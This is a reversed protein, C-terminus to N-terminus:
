RRLVVARGALTCAVASGTTSIVCDTLASPAAIRPSHWLEPRDGGVVLVGLPSPVVLFRGDASRASGPVPPTGSPGVHVGAVVAELEGGRTGLPIPGPFTQSVSGKCGGPRASLLDPTAVRSPEAGSFTLEVESRDCAQQYGTWRAGPALTVDLPWARVEAPATEEKTGDPAVRVMGNATQVLLSDQPPEFALPSWRPNPGRPIPVANPTIVTAVPTRRAGAEIARELTARQEDSIRRGYWGDRALVGLAGLLDGRGLAAGVEAVALRDHFSDLGGCALPRGDADWLRPGGGEACLSAFLRRANVVLEAAAAATKKQKSLSVAKAALSALSARPERPDPSPGAARDLYGIVAAATKGGAGVRVTIRVDDRGDGDQDTSDVGVELTEGPAPLAARLGVLAPRGSTPGLVTISRLPTRPELPTACAAATDLTV